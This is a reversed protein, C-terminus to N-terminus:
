RSVIFASPRSGQAKTQKETNPVGSSVRVSTKSKNSSFDKFCFKSERRFCLDMNSCKIKM